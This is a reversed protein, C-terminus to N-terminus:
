STLYYFNGDPISHNPDPQKEFQSELNQQVLDLMDWGTSFFFDSINEQQATKEYSSFFQAILKSNNQLYETRGVLCEMSDLDDPNGASVVAIVQVPEGSRYLKAANQTSLLAIDVTGDLLATSADESDIPTTLTIELEESPIRICITACTGNPLALHLKGQDETNQTNPSDQEPESNENTKSCAYLSFFLLLSLLLTFYYKLKRM